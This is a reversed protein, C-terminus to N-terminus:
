DEFEEEKKRGITIALGAAAMSLSLALLGLTTTPNVASRAMTGTQPLNGMATPDDVITVEDGDGTAIGSGDDLPTKDDIIDVDDGPTPDLPTPDPDIDTERVYWVIIEKDSNMNGIVDDGTIDTVTYGSITKETQATVDYSSGEAKRTSYESALVEETGEELYKVVLDYRTTPDPGPGPGPDSSEERLEYVLTIVYEHNAEVLQVGVKEVDAIVVTPTGSVYQYSSMEDQSKYADTDLNTIYANAEGSQLEGTKTVTKGSQLVDDLYYNYVRDVRYCYKDTSTYTNTVNLGDCKVEYYDNGYKVLRVAAVGDSEVSTSDYAGVEEVTYTIPEYAGDYKALGTFTHTWKGEADAKVEVPDGSKVDNALLQLQITEPLTVNEINEWTKTATVSFTHADQVTNVFTYSNGVPERVEVTYTEGGLTITGEAPTFVGDAVTGEKVTYTYRSGSGDFKDVPAFSASWVADTAQAATMEGGTITQIPTTESNRFLGFAVDASTPGNWIKSVSYTVTSGGTESDRTNTIQGGAILITYTVGDLEISAGAPTFVDGAVTGEKVTYQIPTKGDTAYKPLDTFTHKWTDSTLEAYKLFTDGAYLGVYISEPRDGDANGGDNWAKIVEFSTKWYDPVFANTLQYGNSKVGDTATFGGVSDTVTYVYEKGTTLDYKDLGEFAYNWGEAATIVDEDIKEGNRNLIVTVTEPLNEGEPVGTWAKTGTIDFTSQGITNTFSYATKEDNVTKDTTYGEVAVEVVDYSAAPKPLTFTHSDDGTLECSDVVTDGDKVQFTAKGTAAETGPGKWTKSVTITVQDGDLTNLAMLEAAGDVLTVNQKPYTVGYEAGDKGAITTVQNETVAGQEAVTYTYLKGDADYVDFTEEFTYTATNVAVAEPTEDLGYIPDFTVTKEFAPDTEGNSSRTVVLTVDEVPRTDYSNGDDEWTKTVSLTGYYDQQITNTVTGGSISVTYAGNALEVVGTSKEAGTRDLEVVSYTIKGEADYSPLNLTAAWATTEVSDVTGDLTVDKVSGDSGKVRLTVAEGTQDPTNWIKKLQITDEGNSVNVLNMSTGSVLDYGSAGTEGVVGYTITTNDNIDRTPLSASGTWTDGNKTVKIEHQYAGTGDFVPKDNQDYGTIRDVTVTIETVGAPAEPVWTKTLNLPLDQPKYYNIVTMDKKNEADSYVVTNKSDTVTVKGYDVTVTYTEAKSQDFDSNAPVTEAMTYTHGSPINSITVNGNLSTGSAAAGHVPDGCTCNLTFQAGTVPTGRGDEKRFSLSGLYGKVTPVKFFAEKLEADEPINGEANSFVYTLKTQKNTPYFEGAAFGSSETKLRITYQLEYPHFTYKKGEMTKDYSAGPTDKRITWTLTGNEERAVATGVATKIEGFEIMAGMPDTVEWAKSRLTIATNINNYVIELEDADDAPYYRDVAKNGNKGSPSMVSNGNDGLGFGVTYLTSDPYKTKLVGAESKAASESGYGDYYENAEGDSMYIVYQSNEQTSADNPRANLAQWAGRFGAQCNTAGYDTGDDNLYAKRLSTKNTVGDKYVYDQCVVDYNKFTNIATQANSTWNCITKHVKPNGSWGNWGGYIVISVRNKSNALLGTIFSEAAEKLATWRTNSLKWGRGGPATGGTTYDMSTSVDFVLVVDAGSAATMTSEQETTEVKLTVLFENEKDTGTIDKSMIVYGNPDQITKTSTATETGAQITDDANLEVYKGIQGDNAAAFAATPLLGFVMVFALFLSLVRKKSNALM